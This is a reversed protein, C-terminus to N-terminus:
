IAVQNYSISSVEVDDEYYYGNVQHTEGEIQLTVPSDINMLSFSILILEYIEHDIIGEEILSNDSVSIFVGEDNVLPLTEYDLLSYTEIQKLGTILPPVFKTSEIFFSVQEINDKYLSMPVMYDKNGYQRRYFVVSSTKNTIDELYSLRNIGINRNLVNPITTNNKPLSNLENNNILLNLEDVNEFDLFTHVLSELMKIENTEQYNLFEESMNLTLVNNTLNINLLKTENPIYGRLHNNTLKSDVKLLSFVEIIEEQVTLRQEMKLTLPVILDDESILYLRHYTMNTEIVVEKKVNSDQNNFHIGLSIGTIILSLPVIFALISKFKINSIMIFSPLNKKKKFDVKQEIDFVNQTDKISKKNVVRKLFSKFKDIIKKM